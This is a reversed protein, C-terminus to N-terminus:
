KLYIYKLYVKFSIVKFTSIGTKKLQIFMRMINLCWVVNMINLCWVFMWLIWLIWVVNMICKMINLCREYVNNTTYIGSSVVATTVHRLIVDREVINVHWTVHFLDIDVTWYYLNIKGVKTFLAKKRENNFKNKTTSKCNFSLPIICCVKIM